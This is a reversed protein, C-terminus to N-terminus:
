IHYIIHYIPYIDPNPASGSAAIPNTVGINIIIPPIAFPNPAPTFESIDLYIPALFLCWADFLAICPIIIARMSEIIIGAISSGHM